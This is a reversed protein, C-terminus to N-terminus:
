ALARGLSCRAKACVGFGADFVAKAELRLRSLADADGIVDVARKFFTDSSIDRPLLLSTLLVGTMFAQVGGSNRCLPVCGSGMAELPPLGFGEHESLHIFCKSRGYLQQMEAVSPRLLCETVKDQVRTAIDDEPTIVAVHLRGRAVTRNIFDLYLDLRKHPGKRLVMVFDIDRAGDVPGGFSPDAWIPAEVAINLGEESLSRTLYPNASIIRGTRYIALVIRRLLQSALGDGIFNWELDQVFFFRRDRPVLLALPLTAYHTFVMADALKGTSRRRAAIWRAFRYALMPLEVVAYAARPLWGSLQEVPASSHMAHPSSWMTLVSAMQGARILDTALRLAERNGGSIKLSPVVLVTEM